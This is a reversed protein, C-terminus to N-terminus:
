AAGAQDGARRGDRLYRRLQRGVLVTGGLVAFALLIPLPGTFWAKAKQEFDAAPVSSAAVLEVRGVVRGGQLVEVAGFAQGAVIPGSVDDPRGVVRRTVDDRHGRPVVRR